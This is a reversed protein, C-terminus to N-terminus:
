NAAKGPRRFGIIVGVVLATIAFAFWQLAYSLHPGDDLSPPEDRRPQAPLSSDQSQLIVLPALPYAFRRRLEALDIRRWTTAGDLERPEGASGSDPLVVALGSVTVMGTDQLGSLDVTMADPSPVFGRQILLATDSGSVRLPTVIRVGAVGKESQGRLVVESSFDYTGTAQVRRNQLGQYDVGEGLSVVPQERAALAERNHARREALRSLQWVGLRIFLAALLLTIGFFLYGRARSTM